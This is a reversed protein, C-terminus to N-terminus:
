LREPSAEQFLFVVSAGDAMKEQMKSVTDQLHLDMPMTVPKAPILIVIDHIITLAAHIDTM